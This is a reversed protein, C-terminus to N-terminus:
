QRAARAEALVDVRDIPEGVSFVEFSFSNVADVADDPAEWRRMGVVQGNEDYAIAVVWAYAPSVEAAEPSSPFLTLTGRVQYGLRDEDLPEAQLSTVEVSFYREEVQNAAAASTLQAQATDWEPLPPPFYVAIPIQEGPLLVNLLSFGPLSTVEEGEADFLRILAALNEVPQEMNNIVPWFCQLGGLQNPSCILEGTQVPQIELDTASPADAQEDGEPLPIILQTGITLFNPNAEPNALTLEDLTIGYYVAIGIM